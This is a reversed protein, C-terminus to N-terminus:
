IIRAKFNKYAKIAFYAGVCLAAIGILWKASKM